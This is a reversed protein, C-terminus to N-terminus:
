IDQLGDFKGNFFDEIPMSLVKQMNDRAIKEERTLQNNAVKDHYKTLELDAQMATVEDDKLQTLDINKEM